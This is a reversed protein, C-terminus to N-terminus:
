DNIIRKDLGLALAEGYPLEWYKKARNWRGGASKVLRGLQVEGYEVRVGIIKNKPIRKPNKQWSKKEIIIEATKLRLHNKEDYIYRVGLLRDGYEDVLKHTGRQGPKLKRQSNM